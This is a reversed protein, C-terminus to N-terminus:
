LRVRTDSDKRTAFLATFTAFNVVGKGRKDLVAFFRDSMEAEWGFNVFFNRMEQQTIKGDRSYDLDRFADRSNKYRLELRQSINVRARVLDRPLDFDHSEGEEERRCFIRTPRVADEIEKNADKALCWHMQENGPNVHPWLYKVFDVYSIEGEDDVEFGAFFKDAEDIPVNFFRFFYHVESQSISGSHDSDIFRFVDRAKSFKQRVKEGIMALM